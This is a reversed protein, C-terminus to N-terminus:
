EGATKERIFADAGWNGSGIAAYLVAVFLYLLAKEQRDFGDNMHQLFAAVFMTVAIFFGSLRTFLGVALLIGGAFESLGAAWAFLGPAPFGLKSVGEVFRESPPMKGIGHGFALAVGTFIRLLALGANGAVSSISSGGFLVTRLM